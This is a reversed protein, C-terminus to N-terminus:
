EVYNSHVQFLQQLLQTRIVINQHTGLSGCKVAQSMTENRTQLDLMSLLLDKVDDQLRWHFQSILAEEDWNINCALLRFDLAYLFRIRSGQWLICIKTTSSHAKNHDEFAEAFAALFAEFNNLTPARKEFL